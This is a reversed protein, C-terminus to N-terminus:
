EALEDGAAAVSSPVTRQCASILERLQMTSEKISMTADLTRMATEAVETVGKFGYGSAAGKIMNTRTRVDDYANARILTNLEHALKHLERVFEDVMENSIVSADRVAHIPGRGSGGMLYEAAARHMLEASVPKVLIESAGAQLAATRTSASADTSMLLIPKVFGTECIDSILDLGSKDPLAGSVIVLDPSDSLMSLGSTADRAFSLEISTRKFYAAYLKQDMMSEEIILIHGHLKDLQVSERHFIHENHFERFEEPNIPDRFRVGVEHISGKIHKCRAVTGVLSRTKGHRDRLSVVCNTGLHIFMGNICGLGTTSINRPIILLHKKAGVSDAITMVAKTGTMSWRRMERKSPANNETDARDLEEILAELEANSLRLESITAKGGM